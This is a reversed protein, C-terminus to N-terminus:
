TLVINHMRTASIVGRMVPEGGKASLVAGFRDRVIGTCSQFGLDLVREEIREFIKARGVQVAIKKVRRQVRKLASNRRPFRQHYQLVLALHPIDAHAIRIVHRHQLRQFSFASPPHLHHLIPPKFPIPPIPVNQRIALLMRHLILSNSSEADKIIGTKIIYSTPREPCQCAGRGEERM